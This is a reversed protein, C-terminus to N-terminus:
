RTAQARGRSVRTGVKGALPNKWGVAADLETGLHVIVSRAPISIGSPFTVPEMGSNATVFPPADWKGMPTLSLM